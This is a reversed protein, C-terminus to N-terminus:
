IGLFHSMFYKNDVLNILMPLHMKSDCSWDILQYTSMLMYVCLIFCFLSSYQRPSLIVVSLIRFMCTYGQALKNFSCSTQPLFQNCPNSSLLLKFCKATSYYGLTLYFTSKHQPPAFSVLNNSKPIAGHGFKPMSVQYFPTYVNTGGALIM